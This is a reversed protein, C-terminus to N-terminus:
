PIGLGPLPRGSFWVSAVAIAAIAAVLATILLGYRNLLRSPGDVLWVSVDGIERRIALSERLRAIANDVQDLCLLADALDTLADAEGYQQGLERFITLGEGHM